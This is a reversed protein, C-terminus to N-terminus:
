SSVLGRVGIMMECIFRACVSIEAVEFAFVDTSTALDKNKAFRPCHRRPRDRAAVSLPSLLSILDAGLNLRHDRQHRRRGLVM